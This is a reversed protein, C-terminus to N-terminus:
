FNEDTLIILLCFQQTPRPRLKKPDETSGPLSTLGLDTKLFVKQIGNTYQLKSKSGISQAQAETLAPRPTLGAATHLLM